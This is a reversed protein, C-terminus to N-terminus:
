EGHAGRSRTLPVASLTKGISSMYRSSSCPLAFHARSLGPAPWMPPTGHVADMVISHSEALSRHSYAAHAHNYLPRTKAYRVSEYVGATAYSPVTIVVPNFTTYIMCEVRRPTRM